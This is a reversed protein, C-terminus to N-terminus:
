PAGGYPGDSDRGDPAAFACFENGEPAALVTWDPRHRLVRVGAPLLGGVDTLLLTVDGTCRSKPSALLAPAPRWSGRLDLHVRSKGQHAVPVGNIWVRRGPAAAHPELLHANGDEHPVVRLGFRLAASRTRRHHSGLGPGPAVARLRQDAGHDARM